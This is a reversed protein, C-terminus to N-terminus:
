DKRSRQVKVFVEYIEEETISYDKLADVCDEIEGTYYCEYNALERKIIAEKGNEELDRKVGEKHVSNIELILTKANEKPCIMGAGLSVYEVGEKEKEAFQENSFAFFAGAKDLAASVADQTYDNLTNM